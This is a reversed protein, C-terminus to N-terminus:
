SSRASQIELIGMMGHDEHDLIHCHYVTRGPYDSFRLRLRLQEGAQVLAVDKWARLPVPQGDRSIVQFANIHLHFPHDMTSASVVEWDEVTGLRVQTNVANAAFAEGNITFGPGDPTMGHDLVFQRVKVPEPLPEVTALQEPLTLPKTQGSDELWGLTQPQTPNLFPQMGRGGMMGQGGMMGRGGMMGFTGRDYPLLLLPYRNARGTSRILVDVREGPVLLLENLATPAAIAGGDTGILTWPHQPIQLRYFRSPSANLIRLRLSGTESLQLQPQVQGNITIVPGERGLMMAMHSLTLDQNPTVDQLVLFQEPIGTEKVWNDLPGRVVFLGVLGNGVQHASAHHLHPHYWATLGTHNRPIQFEYTFSEGTPIELFVNDATGTPPIHLGHFHLNTHEGLQNHLRLRVTDGPQVEFRPGPLLGNYTMLRQPRDGVRLEQWSATLEADLLGNQSRIV